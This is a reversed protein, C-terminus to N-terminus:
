GHLIPNLKSKGVLVAWVCAPRHSAVFKALDEWDLKVRYEEATRIWAAIRQYATDISAAYSIRLRDRKGDERIFDSESDIAKRADDRNVGFEKVLAQTADMTEM